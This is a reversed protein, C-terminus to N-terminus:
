SRFFNDAFNVIVRAFIVVIIGVIVYIITQKAKDKEGEDGGSVILRLGAIVVFVIGLVLVLDLVFKIIDIIINRISTSDGQQTELGPIAGPDPLNGSAFANRVFFLSSGIVSSAKTLLNKMPSLFILPPLYISYIIRNVDESQLLINEFAGRM